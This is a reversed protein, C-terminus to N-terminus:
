PSQPPPCIGITVDGNVACQCGLRCESSLSKRALVKTEEPTRKTLNRMGKVIYLACVGCEGRRCGFRLPLHPYLTHARLFDCGVPIDQSISDKEFTIKVGM